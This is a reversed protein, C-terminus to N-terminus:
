WWPISCEWTTSPPSPRWIYCTAIVTSFLYDHLALM